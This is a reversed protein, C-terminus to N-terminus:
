RPPEPDAPPSLRMRCKCEGTSGRDSHHILQRDHIDSSGFIEIMVTQDMARFELNDFEFEAQAMADQESDHYTDTVVEWSETCYFLYVDSSDEYQAIALGAVIEDFNAVSHRTARTPRQLAGLQVFKKVRAGDLVPPPPAIM